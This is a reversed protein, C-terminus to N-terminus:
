KKGYRELQVSKWTRLMDIKQQCKGLNITQQSWSSALILKDKSDQGTLKPPANIVCDKLLDDSPIIVIPERNTTCAALGFLCVLFIWKM